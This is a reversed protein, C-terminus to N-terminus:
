KSSKYQWLIHVFKRCGSDNTGYLIRRQGIGRQSAQVFDADNVALTGANQARSNLAMQALVHVHFGEAITHIAFTFLADGNDGQFLFVVFSSLRHRFLLNQQHIVIQIDATQDSEIQLFLQKLYHVM